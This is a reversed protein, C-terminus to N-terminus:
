RGDMAIRWTSLVDPNTVTEGTSRLRYEGPKAREFWSLAPPLVLMEGKWRGECAVSIGTVPDTLIVQDHYQGVLDGDDFAWTVGVLAYQGLLWEAEAADWPEPAPQDSGIFSPPPQM